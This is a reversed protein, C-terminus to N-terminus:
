RKFPRTNLTKGGEEITYTSNVPVNKLIDREGSPWAIEVHEAVTQNGLGFTLTLESQSCYSSGSHVVKSLIGNPTQVRVTAGIGSRNSKRGVTKIRLGNNTTGVNEFLCAPGSNTTMLIDLAGDNNIDAYAAGRGVYRNTFGLNAGVNSFRSNGRADM